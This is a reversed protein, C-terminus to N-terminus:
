GWCFKLYSRFFNGLFNMAVSSTIVLLQFNCLHGDVSSHIFLNYCIWLILVIPYQLLFSYPHVYREAWSALHLLTCSCSEIKIFYLVHKLASHLKVLFYFCICYNSSEFIHVHSCICSKFAYFVSFCSIFIVKSSM